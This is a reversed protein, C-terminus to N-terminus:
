WNDFAPTAGKGHYFLGDAKRFVFNHENWLQDSIRADLREAAMRHIAFHNEKTWQRIIQLADWYAEGEATDAPIWANQKLTEPSIERRFRDAARMGSKYLAAGPGRSGHHTVLVTE